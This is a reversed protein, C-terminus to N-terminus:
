AETGTARVTARQQDATPALKLLMMDLQEAEAAWAADRAAAWAAARAAALEQDTAKGDLWMRKVMLARLSDPHPEVGKKRLTEIAQEACWIAFEHLTRTADAIWLCTRNTAVLQDDGREVEGWLACRQVIASDPSYQLADLARISAHYGHSCLEVPGTVRLTKGPVIPLDTHATLRSEPLWHFALIANKKLIKESM